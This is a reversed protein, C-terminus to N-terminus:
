RKYLEKYFRDSNSEPNFSNSNSYTTHAMEHTAVYEFAKQGAPMGRFPVMPYNVMGVGGQIGSGGPLLKVMAKGNFQINEGRRGHEKQM